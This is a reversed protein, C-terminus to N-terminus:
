EDTDMKESRDNTESTAVGTGHWEGQGGQYPKRSAGGEERTLNRREEDTTRGVPETVHGDRGTENEEDLEETLGFAGEGRVDEGGDETVRYEDTKEDIKSAPIAAREAFSDMDVYLRKRTSRATVKKTPERRKEKQAEEADKRISDDILTVARLNLILKHYGNKVEVCVCSFAVEVIDGSRFLSPDYLEHMGNGTEKCYEVRNDEGHIFYDPRIDALVNYPDVISPFAQNKEHPAHSRDTFYRAHSDLADYGEYPVFQIEHLGKGHIAGSLTKYIRGLNKVGVGFEEIGLGTIRVHQRLGRITATNLRKSPKEKLPPLNAGCLVGYAKLVVEETGNGEKWMMRYSPPHQVKNVVIDDVKLTRLSTIGGRGIGDDRAYLAKVMTRAKDKAFHTNM